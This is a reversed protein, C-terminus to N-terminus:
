LKTSYIAFAAGAASGALTMCSFIMIIKYDNIGKAKLHAHLSNGKFLLRKKCKFVAYQLLACVGDAAFALGTLLFVLPMDSLVTMCAVAGGLLLAGSEGLFLKAPSLGWVLFGGSSAAAAYAFLSLSVNGTVSAYVAFALFVLTVTAACLGDCGSETDGGFCDHLKVANIVIVMGVAALPYYLANLDVYGWRFPLLIMDARFGCRIDLAALYATCVVAQFFLRHRLKIGVGCKKVDKFYDDAFGVVSIAASALLSIVAAEAAHGDSLENTGGVAASLFVGVTMSIMIVAGGFKPESGDQRFRDGIYFELRGTKLRRFVPIFWRACLICVALEITM